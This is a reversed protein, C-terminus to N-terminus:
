DEPWVEAQREASAVRATGDEGLVILGAEALEQLWPTDPWRGWRQHYATANTVVSGLQVPDPVTTPEHRRYATAGAVRAVSGGRGRVTTALDTEHGAGSVYDHALGGVQDYDASTMAFCGSVFGDDKTFVEASGPPVPRSPVLAQEPLHTLDYGAGGDPQLPLTDPYWLVPEPVAEETPQDGGQGSMQDAMREVLLPGALCNVDLFLLMTAGRDIAARAGLDLARATPLQRKVTPIAEIVTEWRDSALPLRRQAITADSLAVVVHLSPVRSGVSVAAVQDLLWDHHRRATTILALGPIM